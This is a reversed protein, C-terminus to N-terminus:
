SWPTRSSNMSCKLRKGRGSWAADPGTRTAIPRGAPLLGSEPVPATKAISGYDPYSKDQAFGVAATAVLMITCIPALPKM